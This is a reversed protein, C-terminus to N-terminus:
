TCITYIKIASHYNYLDIAIKEAVPYFPQGTKFRYLFTEIAEINYVTEM